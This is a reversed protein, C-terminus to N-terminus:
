SMVPIFCLITDTSEPKWMNRETCTIFGMNQIYLYLYAIKMLLFDTEEGGGAGGIFLHKVFTQLPVLNNSVQPVWMDQDLGPSPVSHSLHGSEATIQLGPVSCTRPRFLLANIYIKYTM